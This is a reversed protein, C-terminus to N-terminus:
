GTFFSIVWVYKKITKEVINQLIFLRSNKLIPDDILLYDSLDINQMQILVLDIILIINRLKLNQKM